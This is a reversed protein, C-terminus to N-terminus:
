TALAEAGVSPTAPLNAREFPGTVVVEAMREEGNADRVLYAHHIETMGSSLTAGVSCYKTASLEIARRVAEVDVAEGEVIHIVDIRVFANPHTDAQEGSARIEYSTITQQKKRLISIVDMATCGAVAMPILESPRMGTDGTTNDLVLNHGSGATALFRLGDGELSLTATKIGM